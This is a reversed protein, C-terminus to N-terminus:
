NDKDQDYIKYLWQWDERVGHIMNSDPHVQMYIQRFEERNM